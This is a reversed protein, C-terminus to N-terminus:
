KELEEKLLEQMLREREQRRRLMDVEDDIIIKSDKNYHHAIRKLTDSSLNLSDLDQRQVRQRASKLYEQLQQRKEPKMRFKVSLSGADKSLM